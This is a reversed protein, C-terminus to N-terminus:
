KAKKIKMCIEKETEILKTNLRNIGINLLVQMLAISLPFHLCFGLVIICYNNQTCAFFVEGSAM